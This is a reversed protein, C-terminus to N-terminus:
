AAVARALLRERLLRIVDIQDLPAIKGIARRTPFGLDIIARLTEPAAPPYNFLDIPRTEGTEAHMATYTRMTRDPLREEDLYVTWPGHHLFPRGFATLPADPM